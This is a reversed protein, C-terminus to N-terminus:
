IERDKDKEGVRSQSDMEICEGKEKGGWWGGGSDTGRTEWQFFFPAGELRGEAITPSM